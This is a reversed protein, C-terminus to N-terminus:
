KDELLLEAEKQKKQYQEITIKKCRLLYDGFDEATDMGETSVGERKFVKLVTNMIIKFDNIFTIKDIYKLDYNIKDEWSINNRGNVQALGTLGQRVSHRKRQKDSMFVMDRVLQPRPGVISMDGKLINFLEPLEDLSTARLLKGFKTLRDEDSLLNGKRDRKDSMTRFKYMEFIKEDKGPRKQKFIVPKGLKIRIMIAIILMIPSLVILAVLSLTFDLLRKFLLKYM